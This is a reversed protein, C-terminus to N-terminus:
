RKRRKAMKDPDVTIGDASQRVRARQQKRPADSAHAASEARVARSANGNASRNGAHSRGASALKPHRESFRAWRTHLSANHASHLGLLPASAITPIIFTILRWLLFGATAASGFFHGLFLAFGGEAGGTGGPLPVATALLQVFAAAAMVTFPDVDHLGFSRMVFYPVLYLSALQLMTVFATLAMSSFHGASLKFKESFSEIEGDVFAGWRTVKDSSVGLRAIFGLGWHAVRTVTKPMLAIAFILMLLCIHGGFSFICLVGLAAIDSYQTMFFPMRAVMMIAAWLVLAFQYMIFRTFQTAGAEGVPQGAKALTYIQMPTAGMMMPTLNGFFVGSAEVAVLDRVGVPSDPDLWAAIGYAVVGFLFNFGMCICAVVLWPVQVGALAEMFQAVQGSLVLYIIFALLAGVIVIVGLKTNKANETGVPQADVQGKPATHRPSDAM